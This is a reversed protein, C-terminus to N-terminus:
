RESETHRKGLEAILHDRVYGVIEANDFAGIEKYNLIIIQMLAKIYMLIENVVESKPVVDASPLDEIM